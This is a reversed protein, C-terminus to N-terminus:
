RQKTGVIRWNTRLVPMGVQAAYHYMCPCLFLDSLITSVLSTKEVISKNYTQPLRQKHFTKMIVDVLKTLKFQWNLISDSRLSHYNQIVYPRTCTIIILHIRQQKQNTGKLLTLQALPMMITTTLYKQAQRDNSFIDFIPFQTLPAPSCPVLVWWWEKNQKHCVPIRIRSHEAAQCRWDNWFTDTYQSENEVTEKGSPQWDSPCKIRM